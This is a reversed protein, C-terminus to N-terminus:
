TTILGDLGLPLSAVECKFKIGAGFLSVLPAEGDGASCVNTQCLWNMVVGLTLLKIVM